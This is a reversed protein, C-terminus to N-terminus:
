VFMIIFVDHIRVSFQYFQWTLQTAFRRFSLYCFLGCDNDSLCDLDPKFKKLDCEKKALIEPFENSLSPLFKVFVAIGTM